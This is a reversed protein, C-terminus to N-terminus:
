GWIEEGDPTIYVPLWEGRYLVEKGTDHLFGQQMNGNADEWSTFKDCVRDANRYVHVKM